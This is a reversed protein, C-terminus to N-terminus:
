DPAAAYFTLTMRRGNSYDIGAVRGIAHPNHGLAAVARRFADDDRAEVLARGDRAAVLYRAAAAADLPRTATGLLFILSPENYGVVAVPANGPPRDRAVLAAASRSLWIRDLAPVVRAFGPALVVLALLAAGAALAPVRESWARWLLVGGGGLAVLAAVIGAPSPGAGLMLPALALGAALALTTLAWLGSVALRLWRPAAGANFLAHAALLALAPLVPLIYHPLKTPVLELAVWFPVIWALLFRQSPRERERWARLVGDAAFLSGPWFIPTLLLLYAGPPAGHGEQVGVLKGVFDHGLSGGIFAGGTAQTMAVLWPGVILAALPVGWLPRLAKLWAADRDALSLAAATLAALLPAVPGKILAAIGLAAWFLLAWPWRATAGTRTRRYIEGLALQAAAICGLLAADTKALHAEVVLSLSSALLAAGLLAAPAGVLNRGLAFTLLVALTAGILSPLRYPWIAPSAADSTAMVSLAQLWYIGAPKKNRAQNQFRIHLWDGTEIMQRTAQAFRAEDRDTPPLAALGPLYLGLCFLGLLLYPRWGLSWRTIM